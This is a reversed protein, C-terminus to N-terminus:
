RIKNKLAIIEEESQQTRLPLKTGYSLAKRNIIRIWEEQKYSLKRKRWVNVYFKYEVHNVVGQKLLFAMTRENVRANINKRLKNLNAHVVSINIGNFKKVCTSGVELITGYFKNVLQNVEVIHPKGCTCTAGNFDAYTKGVEWEHRASDWDESVSHALIEQKLKAFNHAM